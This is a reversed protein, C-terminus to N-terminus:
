GGRGWVSASLRYVYQRMMTLPMCVEHRTDVGVREGRQVYYGRGTLRHLVQQKARKLPFAWLAASLDPQRRTEPKNAGQDDMDFVVRAIHARWASFHATMMFLEVLLVDNLHTNQERYLETCIAVDIMTLALYPLSSGRLDGGSESLCECM